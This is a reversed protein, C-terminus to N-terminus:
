GGRLARYHRRALRAAATDGVVGALRAEERLHASLYMNLNLYYFGRRRVAAYARDPARLREYLKAILLNGHGYWELWGPPVTRALADLSDLMARADPEGRMVARYTELVQRCIRMGAHTTDLQAITEGVTTADGRALNAEELTCRNRFWLNRDRLDQPPKNKLILPRVRDARQEADAPSTEWYLAALIAFADAARSLHVLHPVTASLNTISDVLATATAIQGRNLALMWQVRMQELSQALTSAGDRWIGAVREADDVRVGAQLALNYVPAVNLQKPLEALADADNTAAALMWRPTWDPAERNPHALLRRTYTRVRATDRHIFALDALHQIAGPFTSDIRTAQEFTLRAQEHADTIGLLRGYHFLHDGYGFLVEYSYSHGTTKPVLSEWAALQEALSSPEPYRPGLKAATIEYDLPALLSRSTWALEVGRRLWPTGGSGAAISAGLAATAFSTDIEVSKVFADLARKPQHARLLRQGELYWLVADLPARKLYPLREEPEAAARAFITVTVADVLADVQDEAAEVSARAVPKANRMDILTADILVGRSGRTISGLLVRGAGVDRGIRSAERFTVPRRVRSGAHAELAGLTAGEDAVQIAPSAQLRSDILVPITTALRLLLTDRQEAHFPLAAILNPDSTLTQRQWAPIVAVGALVVALVVLAVASAAYRPRRIRHAATVAAGDTAAHDDSAAADAERRARARMSQVLEITSAEPEVELEARLRIEFRQYVHLAATRDGTSELTSLLRRVAREDYPSVSLLRRLAHAEEDTRGARAASDAFRWTLETYSARIRDREAALWEEFDPAATLGFGELLPGRLLDTAHVWDGRDCADYFQLADCTIHDLDVAVSNDARTALLNAGLGSRIQHVLSRLAGRAHAEDAEPWFLALLTDRRIFEGRGASILYILLALRKGGALVFRGAAPDLGEVALKGLTRLVIM